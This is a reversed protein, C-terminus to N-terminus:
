LALENLYSDMPLCTSGNPCMIRIKSFLWDKSKTLSYCYQIQLTPPTLQPNSLRLHLKVPSTFGIWPIKVRGIWPIDIGRGMTDQGGIWPIKFGRGMTNQRGRDIIYQGGVWPKYFGKGM